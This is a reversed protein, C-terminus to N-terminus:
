FRFMAGLLFNIGESSYGYYIDNKRHLWNNLQFFLTLNPQQEPSLVQEGSGKVILKEAKAKRGVWMEYQLGLNLEVTPKLQHTGDTALALRSGAFYNDSYLSWHKDIRGDIRLGLQWNPRDFVITDGRWFYYDGYLNIRVIDQYHYNIQGGIKGRQYNTHLHTFDGPTLKLGLPAFTSTTDATAVWIDEHLMYAYGGHLEILLDRYPRIHLGLEADVPTYSAYHPETIGAHIIRYRNEEMYAQLTGLGHSGSIDAYVTLWKPAVQAELHIHPSPAFSLDEVGSLSNQGQGLNLDLNVGVHLNIRNGRYEYYPEIRFNHRSRYMSDPIVAALSGLQLLNNQVYVQAGVHHANSHWDFDAHTRIQHENVAGPKSFLKYGTQLRYQVDQKANARVGIYAEAMWLSTKDMDAFTANPYVTKDKIWAGPTALSYDYFHGYKHYFVNGGNLGFYLDCTSFPHTFNIGLTTKSLARLGWQARHHAYVDLISRKGDDLHYGFDFLTNTHGLGGRIYGHYPQNEVFRTPQSLLPNFSTGPQVEAIYDSYEIRAPEIKMETVAPRTAVKGAAQIVPQFDREVTVSRNLVSDNQALLPVFVAESLSLLCFVFIYRRITTHKM